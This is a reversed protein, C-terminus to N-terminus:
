DRCTGIGQPLSDEAECNGGGPCANPQGVKCVADRRVAPAGQCSSECTIEPDAAPRQEFCCVEGPCDEPGDCFLEVSRCLIGECDCSDPLSGPQSSNLAFCYDGPNDTLCCAAGEFLACLTDGCTIVGPGPSM